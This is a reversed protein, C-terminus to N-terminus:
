KTVIFRIHARTDAKYAFKVLYAFQIERLPTYVCYERARWNTLRYYKCLFLKAYVSRVFLKDYDFPRVIVM